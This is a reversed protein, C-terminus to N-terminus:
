DHRGRKRTLRKEDLLESISEYQRRTFLQQFEDLCDFAYAIHLLGLFSIEGTREFKRYTPLKVGARRALGEQTINLELRRKRVNAAVARAVDLPTEEKLSIMTNMLAM